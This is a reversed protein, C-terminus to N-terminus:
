ESINVEINDILRTSGVKAAVAVVLRKEGGEPAKLDDARVIRVYEVAFGADTLRMGARAELAPYDREGAILKEATDSLIAHITPALARQPPDLYQNRSSLALGDAERQTEVGVIRIPMALERVMTRLIALQQYDKQGFIAVDPQVLNFLKTVVTAVGSFHGPRSAGCLGETLPGSVEVRVAGPVGAPYMVAVPPLFVLDAGREALAACDAEPTRPYVEFDEGPGFQTPNVFISVVVRQALGRARDVLTLHGAHLNGMTPVLAIRQGAQRWHTIRQRLAEATEVREM